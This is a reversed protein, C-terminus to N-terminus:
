VKEMIFATVVFFVMMSVLYVMTALAAALGYFMFLALTGM